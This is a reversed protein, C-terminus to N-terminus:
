VMRALQAELRDLNQENAEIAVRKVKECDAATEFQMRWTLKTKGGQDALTITLQFRPASVHQLVIREPRVVDTFVSENQHDAGEPGHMVFRWRGGPRMDFERFTNTFGKPGWWLKLHDPNSFARYVRERPAAFVRTTVIERDALLAAPKQNGTSM